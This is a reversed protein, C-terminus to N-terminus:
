GAGNTQTADFKSRTDVDLRWGWGVGLFFGHPHQYTLGLDIEVPSKLDSVFGVPLISGDTATLAQKVAITDKTYKEGSLEATFRLTKRSPFGAGFGWRFGNTEEVQAPAARVIFGAYGSLEARQNVEKSVVADFAFDLKGTGAGNNKKGTPFKVMPRLAFAAPQQHYESTLNIKTGFWIDGFQNGSWSQAMLPNQPVTGGAGPISPVFLPRINRDVRSILVVSAFIEARDAIGAAFTVPWNAVNSFGQNDNFAVRYASFSWKKRPLIEGTPVYWLGTDGLFTTTEPRTTVDGSTTTGASAAAGQDSKPKTADPKDQKAKATTGNQGNDSTSTQAAGPSAIALTLAVAIGVRNLM